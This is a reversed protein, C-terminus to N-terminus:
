LLWVAYCGLICWEEYFLVNLFVLHLYFLMVYDSVYVWLVLLMVCSECFWFRIIVSNQKKMFMSSIHDCFFIVFGDFCGQGLMGSVIEHKSKLFPSGKGWRGLCLTWVCKLCAICLVPTWNLTCGKRQWGVALLQSLLLWTMGSCPLRLFDHSIHTPPVYYVVCM